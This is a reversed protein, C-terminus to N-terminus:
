RIEMSFRKKYEFGASSLIGLMIFNTVLSSGGYSLFPLTIGVVPLIGVNMGINFFIHTMLLFFFGAIMLRTFEDDVVIFVSYVRYMLFMFLALILMGGIFGLNETITAFIFDTHHEPLFRLLSQTSSDFGKGWFGGSGISILAQISNYSSGFPDSSIDLFSLIRAKQYGQLLNFLLPLPILAVIGGGLFYSIPFGYILMMFLTTVLYIVANGLDPQKLTLVFIPTLLLLSKLFTGFSKSKSNTLFSALSIIFFPKIIESVQLRLGFIDIWRVSGHAEIGLFFVVLLMVIMAIYVFKWTYGFIRYDINLFLFYVVLSFIFTILQQGFLTPEITHLTMLGIGVLIVAPLLLTFNIRNLAFKHM